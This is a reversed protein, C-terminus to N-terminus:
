VMLLLLSYGAAGAVFSPFESDQHEPLEEKLVNLIVGGAVIAWIISLAAENLTQVQGVIWGVLIAAALLWRGWRDYIKKHHERFGLDNVLFHLGLVVFLLLCAVLGHNESERLLYGLIMNYVAFASIHIWFISASTSDPHGMRQRHRRSRLVMQDLGYFIVLGLLSL